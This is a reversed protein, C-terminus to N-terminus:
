DPRHERILALAAPRYRIGRYTLWLNAPYPGSACEMQLYPLGRWMLEVGTRVCTKYAM